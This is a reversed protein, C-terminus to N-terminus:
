DGLRSSGPDKVRFQEIMGIERHTEPSTIATPRVPGSASRASPGDYALRPAGGGARAAHRQKGDHDVDM